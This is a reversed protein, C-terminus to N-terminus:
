EIILCLYRVSPKRKGKMDNDFHSIIIRDGTKPKAKKLKEISLSDTHLLIADAKVPQYIVEFNTASSKLYSSFLSYVSDISVKHTEGKVEKYIEVGSSQAFAFSVAFLYFLLFLNKM